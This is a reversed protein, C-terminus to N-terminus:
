FVCLQEVVDVPIGGLEGRRIYKLRAGRGDLEFYPEVGPEVYPEIEILREAADAALVSNWLGEQRMTSRLLAIARRRVKMDQCKTAVSFLPIVYGMDLCFSAKDSDLIREAALSSIIQEALDLMQEMRPTFEELSRRAIPPVLENYVTIYTGMFHLRLVTVGTRERPSLSPGHTLAFEDLATTYSAFLSAINKLRSEDSGSYVPNGPLQSAFESRFVYCGYQFTNRAQQLSSFHMPTNSDPFATEHMPGFYLSDNFHMNPTSDIQISTLM